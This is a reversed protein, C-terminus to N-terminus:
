RLLFLLHTGAILIGALSFLILGIALLLRYYVEGFKAFHPEKPPPPTTTLFEPSVASYFTEGVPSRGGPIHGGPTRIYWGFSNSSVIVYPGAGTHKLWVTDGRQM